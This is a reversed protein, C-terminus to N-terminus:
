PSQFSYSIRLNQNKFIVVMIYKLYRMWILTNNIKDFNSGEQCQWVSLISVPPLEPSLGGLGICCCMASCISVLFELVGVVMCSLFFEIRNYLHFNFFPVCLLPLFESVYVGLLAISVLMSLISLGLFTRMQWLFVFM